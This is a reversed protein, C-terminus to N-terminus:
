FIRHKWAARRSSHLVIIQSGPEEENVRVRALVSEGHRIIMRDSGRFAGDQFLNSMEAAYCYNANEGSCNCLQHPLAKLEWCPKKGQQSDRQQHIFLLRVLLPDLTEGGSSGSVCRWTITISVTSEDTKFCLSSLTCCPCVSGIKSRCAPASNSWTPSRWGATGSIDVRHCCMYLTIKWGRATPWNSAPQHQFEFRQVWLGVSLLAIHIWVCKNKKGDFCFFIPAIM